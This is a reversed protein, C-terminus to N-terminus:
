RKNVPSETVQVPIGTCIQVPIPQAQMCPAHVESQATVPPNPSSELRTLISCPDTSEVGGVDGGGEEPLVMFQLLHRPVGVHGGPRSPLPLDELGSDRLLNSGQDEGVDLVEPRSSEM